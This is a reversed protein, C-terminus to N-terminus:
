LRERARPNVPGQAGQWCASSIRQGMLVDSFRLKAKMHSSAPVAHRLRHWIINM